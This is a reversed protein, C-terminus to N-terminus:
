RASYAQLQTVHGPTLENLETVGLLKMTRAM